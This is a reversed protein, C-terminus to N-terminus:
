ITAVLTKVVDDWSLDILGAEDRLGSMRGIPSCRLGNLVWSAKTRPFQSLHLSCWESQENM